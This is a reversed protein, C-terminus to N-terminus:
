TGGVAGGLGDAYGILGKEADFVSNKRAYTGAEGRRLDSSARGGACRDDAACAVECITIAIRKCGRRAETSAGGLRTLLQSSGTGNIVSVKSLYNTRLVNTTLANVIVVSHLM